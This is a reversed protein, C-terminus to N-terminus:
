DTASSPPASYVLDGYEPHRQLFTVVFPCLPLVALHRARVDDLAGRVLETAVGQGAFAPDVEAHTMVILGEALRYAVFGALAGDDTRAEYREEDPEDVVTVDIGM